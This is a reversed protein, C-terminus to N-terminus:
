IVNNIREITDFIHEIRMIYIITKYVVLALAFILFCYFLVHIKHINLFFIRTNVYFSLCFSIFVIFINIFLSRLYSLM